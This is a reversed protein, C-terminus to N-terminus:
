NLQVRVTAGASSVSLVTISFGSSVTNTIAPSPTIPTADVVTTTSTDSFGKGAVLAGNYGINLRLMEDIPFFNEPQLEKAPWYKIGGTRVLVGPGNVPGTTRKKGRGTTTTGLYLNNRMELYFFEKVESLVKGVFMVTRDTHLVKIAAPASGASQSEMDAIFYDGSNTICLVPRLGHPGILGGYEKYPANWTRSGRGMIDYFDGYSVEQTGNWANGEGWHGLCHGTEHMLTPFYWGVGGNQCAPDGTKVVYDVQGDIRGSSCACAGFSDNTIIFSFWSRGYSSQMLFDNAKAMCDNAIADYTLNTGYYPDHAVFKVAGPPISFVDIPNCNLNSQAPAVFLSVALALLSLLKKM